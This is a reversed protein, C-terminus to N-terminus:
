KIPQITPSAKFPIQSFHLSQSNALDDFVLGRFANWDIQRWKIVEVIQYTILLFRKLSRFRDVRLLDNENLAEGVKKLNLFFRSLHLIIVRLIYLTLLKM